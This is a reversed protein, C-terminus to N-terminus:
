SIPIPFAPFKSDRFIIPPRHCSILTHRWKRGNKRSVLNALQRALARTTHQPWLQFAGNPRRACTLQLHHQYIAATTEKTNYFQVVTISFGRGFNSPWLFPESGWSQFRLSRFLENKRNSHFTKTFDTSFQKLLSIDLFYRLVQIILFQKSYIIKKM